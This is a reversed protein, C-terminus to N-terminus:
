ELFHIDTAIRMAETKGRLLEVLKLGFALATGAGRSTVIAGGLSFGGATGGADVVVAENSLTEPLEDVVSGHATYRRGALIGADLLVLPAACIAAV